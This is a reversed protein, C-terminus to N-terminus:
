TGEMKLSKKSVHSLKKLTSIEKSVEDLRRPDKFRKGAYMVGTDEHVLLSVDGFSGSGLGQVELYKGVPTRTQIPIAYPRPVVAGQAILSGLYRGLRDAYAKQYPGRDPVLAIYTLDGCTIAMNQEIVCTQGQNLLKTKKVWTGLSSLSEVFLIGSTPNFKIAFHRKSVRDSRIRIDCADSRGFIFGQKADHPPVALSLRIGLVHTWGAIRPDALRNTNHSNDIAAREQKASPILNLIVAGLQEAM